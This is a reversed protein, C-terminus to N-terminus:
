GWRCNHPKGKFDDCGPCYHFDAGEHHLREGCDPCNGKCHPGYSVGSWRSSYYPSTKSRTTKHRGHAM